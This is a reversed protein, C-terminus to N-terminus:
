PHAVPGPSHFRLLTPKPDLVRTENRGLEAESHSWKNFLLISIETKWRNLPGQSPTWSPQGSQGVTRHPFCLHSCFSAPDWELEMGEQCPPFGPQRTQWMSVTDTALKLPNNFMLSFIHSLEGSLPGPGRSELRSQKTSNVTTIVLLSLQWCKGV